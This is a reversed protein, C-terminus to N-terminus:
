RREGDDEPSSIEGLGHQTQVDIGPRVPTVCAMVGPVGDVIVQCDACRGVMCFGGRPDGFRPMTRFVRVGSAILAAAIPEGQLGSVPRGDFTFAVLELVPQEPLLTHERIRAAGFDDGHSTLRAEDKGKEM